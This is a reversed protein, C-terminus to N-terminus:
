SAPPAAPAASAPALPAPTAQWLRVLVTVASALLVVCYGELALDHVVLGYAGWSLADAIAVWWTTSAIGSLDRDRLAKWVQPGATVLVGAALAVAFLHAIAALGLAAVLVLAAKVDSRRVDRRLLVVQWVGPVLAVISVGWVVPLGASFGYALWAGASVVANIAGLASVGAAVGTRALRVPQPLLRVLFIASAILALATAM